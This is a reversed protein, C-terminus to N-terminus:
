AIVPQARRAQARSHSRAVGDGFLLERQVRAPSSGSWRMAVARALTELPLIGATGPSLDYAEVEDELKVFAENRECWAGHFNGLLQGVLSRPPRRCLWLLRGPLNASLRVLQVSDLPLLWAEPNPLPALRRLGEITLAVHLRGEAGAVCVGDGASLGPIFNMAESESSWPTSSHNM